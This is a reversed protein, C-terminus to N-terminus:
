AQWSIRMTKRLEQGPSLRVVGGVDPPLNFADPLGSQPEVCTAAPPM